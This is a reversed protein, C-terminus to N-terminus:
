VITKLVDFMRQGLNQTSVADFHYADLLTGDAMDILHVFKDEENILEQAQHVQDTYQASLPSITGFIFPLKPNGVIGRIYAIVNKFNQYYKVRATVTSDGEGQHWLVAKIELDPNAEIANLIKRKFEEVLKKGTTIDETYPTWYGGGTTGTVDIATGGMARKILYVTQNKYQSILYSAISDYAYLDLVNAEGPAGSGTNVGYKFPAFAKTQDNWMMVNPVTNDNNLIYAPLQAIPVRGETNSQGAVIIGYKKVPKVNLKALGRQFINSAEFDSPNMKTFKEDTQEDKQLLYYLGKNYNLPESEEIKAFATGYAGDTYDSMGILVDQTAIYSGTKFTGVTGTAPRLITSLFLGEPTYINLNAVSGVSTYLNVGYNLKQGKKLLFKPTRNHGYATGSIGGNTTYYSTLSFAQNQEPTLTKAGEFAVEVDTNLSQTRTNLSSLSLDEIYEIKVYRTGFGGLTYDVLAIKVDETATYTRQFFQNLNGTQPYLNEKFVGEPTYINCIAASGGSTYTNVGFSLKQGKKLDFLPTRQMSYNNGTNVPGDTYYYGNVWSNIVIEKKGTEVLKIAKFVADQSTAVTGGEIVTSAVPTTPLVARSGLSWTTGNWWLTMIEGSPNVFNNGGYTWTGASEIVMKRDQGAPGAPLAGAAVPKIEIGQISLYQNAQQFDIYQVEGNANKGIMMKDAGSVDTAKDMGQWFNVSGAM